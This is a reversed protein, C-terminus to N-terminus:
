VMSQKFTLLTFALTQDERLQCQWVPRQWNFQSILQVSYGNKLMRWANQRNANFIFPTLAHSFWTENSWYSGDMIIVCSAKTNFFSTATRCQICTFHKPLVSPQKVQQPILTTPLLSHLPCHLKIRQCVEEQVLAIEESLCSMVNAVGWSGTLSCERTANGAHTTALM